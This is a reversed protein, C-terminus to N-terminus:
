DNPGFHIEMLIAEDAFGLSRYFERARTNGPMVSLSAEACGAEKAFLLLRQVLAKGVGKGRAKEAVVVEDVLCCSESHYLNPRISFSLMGVVQGGQEALFIRSGPFGLYTDVYDASPSATEGISDALEAILQAVGEGDVPTGERILIPSTKNMM